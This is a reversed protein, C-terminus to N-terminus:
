VAGMFKGCFWASSHHTSELHVHTGAHGLSALLQAQGELGKLAVYAAVAHPTAVGNV